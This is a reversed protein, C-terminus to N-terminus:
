QTTKMVVRKGDLYMDRKVRDDSRTPIRPTYKSYNIWKDLNDHTGLVKISSHPVNPVDLKEYRQRSNERATTINRQVMLHNDGFSENKDGIVHHTDKIDFPLPQPM